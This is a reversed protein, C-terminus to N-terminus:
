SKEPYGVFAMASRRDMHWRSAIIDREGQSQDNNWGADYSKWGGILWLRYNQQLTDFVAIPLTRRTAAVCYRHGEFSRYHNYADQAMRHWENRNHETIIMDM